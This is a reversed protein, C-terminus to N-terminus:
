EQGGVGLHTVAMHIKFVGCGKVPDVYVGRKGAIQPLYTVRLFGEEGSGIVRRVGNNGVGQGQGPSYYKPKRNCFM